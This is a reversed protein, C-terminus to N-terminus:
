SVDVAVVVDYDGTAGFDFVGEVTVVEGPAVETIEGATLTTTATPAGGQSATITARFGDEFRVTEDGRNELTVAVPLTTGDPEPTVHLQMRVHDGEASPGMTSTVATDEASSGLEVFVTNDAHEVRATSTPTPTQEAPAPAPAPRADDSAPSPAAVPAPTSAPANTVVQRGPAVEPSAVAVRPQADIPAVESAPAATAAAAPAVDDGGGTDRTAVIAGAAVVMGAAIGAALLLMGRRRSPTARVADLDSLGVVRELATVPAARFVIRATLEGTDVDILQEVVDGQLALIDEGDTSIVVDCAGLPVQSSARVRMGGVSVDVTECRISTGGTTELSVPHRVRRRPHARRDDETFVPMSRPM